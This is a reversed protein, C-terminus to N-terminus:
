DEKLLESIHKVDKLRKDILIGLDSLRHEVNTKNVDYLHSLEVLIQHFESTSYTEKTVYIQGVNHNIGLRNQIAIVAISMTSRPMLFSSSFQNAQWELWDRESQLYKKGTVFDIETDIITDYNSKVYNVKRHLILHGIEHALAFQFRNSNIISKDILISKSSIIFKGLIKKDNSSYGLDTGLVININFEKRLSNCILELPTETPKELIQPYFYEIVEEAKLEIDERSLIPINSMM